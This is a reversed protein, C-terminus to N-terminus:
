DTSEIMAIQRPANFTDDGAFPAAFILWIGCLALAALAGGGFPLLPRLWLLRGPPHPLPRRAVHQAVHARMRELAATDPSARSDRLAADLLAARRLLAQAEDSGALLHRAKAAEEAPWRRLDAGFTDLLRAFRTITM